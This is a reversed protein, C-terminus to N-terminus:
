EAVISAMQRVCGGVVESVELVHELSEVSLNIVKYAAVVSDQLLCGAILPINLGDLSFQLAKHLLVSHLSCELGELM